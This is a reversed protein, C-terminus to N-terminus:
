TNESHHHSPELQGITVAIVKTKVNWMRQIEFSLDKYKLIKEVKKIM